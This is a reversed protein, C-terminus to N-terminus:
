VRMARGSPSSGVVEQDSTLRELELQALSAQLSLFRHSKFGRVPLSGRWQTLLGACYAQSQWTEPSVLPVRIRMEPVVVRHEAVQAIAETAPAPISGAHGPNHTRTPSWCGERESCRRFM